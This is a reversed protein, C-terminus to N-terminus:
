TNLTDRTSPTCHQYDLSKSEHLECALQSPLFLPMFYVDRCVCICVYAHLLMCMRVCVHVHMDCVHIYASVNYTVNPYTNYSFAIPNEFPKSISFLLFFIVNFITSLGTAKFHTSSSSQPM